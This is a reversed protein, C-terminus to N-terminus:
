ANDSLNGRFGRRGELHTFALLPWAHGLAQDYALRQGHEANFNDPDVPASYGVLYWGNDLQIVAITLCERVIYEVSAVRAKMDALTIRFGTRVAESAADIAELSSM